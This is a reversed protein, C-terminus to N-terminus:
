RGNVKEGDIVARDLSIDYSTGDEDQQLRVILYNWERALWFTTNRGQDNERLRKIKVVSFIGAPTKIDEEGLIEFGYTKLIGGDAINYEGLTKENLWDARLQLQYSLKDLTLPPIDMTWPRGEVNNIVTQSPWDFDLMAKRDRGLGDRLYTYKVPVIHSADNWHFQSTELVDALLSDAEVTFQKSGDELTELKRTVTVGFGRLRTKYVAEFDQM